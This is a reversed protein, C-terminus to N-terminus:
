TEPEKELSFTRAIMTGFYMHLLTMMSEENYDIHYSSHLYRFYPRNTESVLRKLAPSIKVSNDYTEIFNLMDQKFNDPARKGKFFTRFKHQPQNKMYIIGRQGFLEVQDFELEPDVKSLTQLLDLDNSFVSVTDGQIRCLYQDTPATKRWKFLKEIQEYNIMDIRKTWNDLIVSVRTPMTKTMRSMKQKFEEINSSYFTYGAGFVTCKAHYKYKNFYLSNRRKIPLKLSEM